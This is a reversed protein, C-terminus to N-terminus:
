KVGTVEMFHLWMNKISSVNTANLNKSFELKVNKLIIDVYKLIYYHTFFM